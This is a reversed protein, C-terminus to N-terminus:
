PKLEMQQGKSMWRLLSLIVQVRQLYRSSTILARGKLRRLYVLVRQGLLAAQRPYQTNVKVEQTLRFVM